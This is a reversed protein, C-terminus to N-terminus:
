NELEKKAEVEKMLKMEKDLMEQLAAVCAKSGLYQGDLIFSGRGTSWIEEDSAADYNKVVCQLRAIALDLGRVIGHRYGKNM